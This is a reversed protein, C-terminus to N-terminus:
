SSAHIYVNRGRCEYKTKGKAILRKERLVTEQTVM